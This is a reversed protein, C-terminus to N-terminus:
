FNMDPQKNHIEATKHQPPEMPHIKLDAFSIVVEPVHESCRFTGAGTFGCGDRCFDLAYGYHKALEFVARRTLQCLAGTLMCQCLAGTLMCQCLAGTLMCQCLAGALIRQCLAGALIRQCLVGSLIVQCLAGALIIKSNCASNFTPTATAVNSPCKEWKRMTADFIRLAKKQFQIL